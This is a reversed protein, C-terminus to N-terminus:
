GAAVTPAHVLLARGQFGDLDIAFSHMDDVTGVLAGDFADTILAGPPLATSYVTGAIQEASFNLVTIQQGGHATQNVMVLMPRHSVDPVDLLAGSAIGHEKRVALILSLQRVFSDPDALQDPLTGYLSRSRPMGAASVQATPNVGMLDHAGRHVWRTDGGAILNQVRSKDITVMGCLDWGSLAFVGPQLANYMALLLHVRRIQTIEDDTASAPDVIGLTATIVTATTCAIGNTTFILNYPAAPATIKDRLTQRVTEALDLGLLREGALTFEDDKHKTAFHVLEYTLEDHNQMAHVLSAQDIGIRVAERLTLRLFETDSTVLAHHYGPRTVFDYSLDPGVEGTAKIDDITLNLEQFTFGGVKRVMSGILQNAADSM